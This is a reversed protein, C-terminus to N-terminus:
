ILHLSTKTSELDAVIRFSGSLKIFIESLLGIFQEGICSEVTKGVVGDLSFIKNDITVPATLLYNHLTVFSCGPITQPTNNEGALSM